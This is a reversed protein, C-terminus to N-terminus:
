DSKQFLYHKFSNVIKEQDFNKAIVSAKLCFSKYDPSNSMLLIAQTLLEHNETPVLYGVNTKELVNIKSPSSKPAMIERPGFPCDYSIVPKSLALAEIIVNSLGEFSSCLVLCYAQNLYQFPNSQQGLFSIRDSMNLTKVLQQCESLMEGSGILILHDETLQADHFARILSLHNKYRHFNGIHIWYRIKLNFKFPPVVMSLQVVQQIPIPNYIVTMQNTCHYLNKLENAIGNSVVQTGNAHSNVFRLIKVKLWRFIGSTSDLINSYPCHESVIFRTSKKAFIYTLSNLLNAKNLLSYSADIKEKKCLKNLKFVYWPLFCFFAGFNRKSLLNYYNLVKVNRPINYNIGPELLILFVVYDKSFSDVLVSVNKEAGGISLSNIIIAIKKKM